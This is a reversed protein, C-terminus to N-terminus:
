GPSLCVSVVEGADCYVLAFALFTERYVGRNSTLVCLLACLEYACLEYAVTHLVSSQFSCLSLRACLMEILVGAGLVCCYDVLM